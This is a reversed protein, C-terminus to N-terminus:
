LAHGGAVQLVQGTIWRAQHSALFVVADAIDDPEGVRGLPVLATVRGILDEGIWGTQVPGPAVANVRIGRPALDLATARTLAELAAKSTGYGIQGPFARAADTTVNVVCLPAEGDHRRAVEATLLAPAVANVRYHRELSGATLADVTDPSECHAANNVLVNIPGLLGTVSEVLARPAGPESLDAEVAVAGGGLERALEEAAGEAPTVHEWEAGEPAPADRGLYHVAVRAGQAAFARCIAAGINGAGGTVLVNRGALRTDLM